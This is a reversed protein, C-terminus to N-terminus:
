NSEELEWDYLSMPLDENNDARKLDYLKEPSVGEDYGPHYGEPKGSAFFDKAPMYKNAVHTVIL